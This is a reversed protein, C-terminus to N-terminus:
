RSTMFVARKIYLQTEGLQRKEVVNPYLRERVYAEDSSTLEVIGDSLGGVVDKVRGSIFQWIHERWGPERSVNLQEVQM